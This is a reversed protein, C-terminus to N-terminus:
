YFVKTKYDTLTNIAKSTTFIYHKPGKLPSSKLMRM